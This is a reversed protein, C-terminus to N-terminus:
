HIQKNFIFSKSSYDYKLVGNNIATKVDGKIQEFQLYKLELSRIEAKDANTLPTGATFWGGDVKDKIEELRDKIKSEENNLFRLAKGTVWFENQQEYKKVDIKGFSTSESVNVIALPYKTITNSIKVIKAKQAATLPAM